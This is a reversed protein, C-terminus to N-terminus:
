MKSQYTNIHCIPRFILHQVHLLTFKVTHVPVKTEILQKISCAYRHINQEYNFYLIAICWGKFLYTYKYVWGGGVVVAALKTPYIYSDGPGDM